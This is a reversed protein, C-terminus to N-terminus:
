IPSRAYSFQAYFPSKHLVQCQVNCFHDENYQILLTVFLDWRQLCNPMPVSRGRAQQTPSHSSVEYSPRSVIPRGSTMQYRWWGWNWYKHMSEKATPRYRPLVLSKCTYISTLQIYRCVFLDGFFNLAQHGQFLRHSRHTLPPPYQAPIEQLTWSCMHGLGISIDRVNYVFFSYFNNRKSLPLPTKRPNSSPWDSYTLFLSINCVSSRLVEDDMYQNGLLVHKECEIWYLVEDRSTANDLWLSHWGSSCHLWYMIQLAKVSSSVRTIYPRHGLLSLSM